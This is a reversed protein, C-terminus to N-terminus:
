AAGSLKPQATRRRHRRILPLEVPTADELYVPGGCRECRIRKGPEPPDGHYGPRPRFHGLEPHEREGIMQGSVHGCYYCKVDAAVQMSDEM